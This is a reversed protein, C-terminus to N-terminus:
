AGDSGPLQKLTRSQFKGSEMQTGPAELARVASQSDVDAGISPQTTQRVFDRVFALEYALRGADAVAGAFKIPDSRLCFSKVQGALDLSLDLRGVAPLLEETTMEAAPIGYRREMYRRLIASLRFYFRKLDGHDEAALGDLLAYAEVEPAPLPTAAPEAATKKRRRWLWWAVAALVAVAVMAAALWILWNLDAGMALAPKIDHIDTMPGTNQGSTAQGAPPAKQALATEIGGLGISMCGALVLVGFWAMIGAIASRPRSSLDSGVKLDIRMM